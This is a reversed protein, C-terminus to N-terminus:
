AASRGRRGRRMWVIGLQERLAAALSAMTVSGGAGQLHENMRHVKRVVEEVNSKLLMVNRVLKLSKPSDGSEDL